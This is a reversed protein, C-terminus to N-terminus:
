VMCCYLLPAFSDDLVDLAELLAVSSPVEEEEVLPAEESPIEISIFSMAAAIAITKAIMTNWHRLLLRRRFFTEEDAELTVDRESLDLELDRGDRDLDPERVRLLDEEEAFPSSYWLISSRGRDLLSGLVPLPGLFPLSRLFTRSRLFSLSGLLTRARSGM